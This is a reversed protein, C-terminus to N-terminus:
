YFSDFGHNSFRYSNGHIRKRNRLIERRNNSLLGFSFNENITIRSNCRLNYIFIDPRQDNYFYRRKKYPYSSYNYYSHNYPIFLYYIYLSYIAIFSFNVATGASCFCNGAYSKELYRCTKSISKEQNIFFM